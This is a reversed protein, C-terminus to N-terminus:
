WAAPRRSGRRYPRGGRARLDLDPDVVAALDEVARRADEEAVVLVLRLRGLRLRRVAEDARAVGSEEIRRAVELDDVARLVHPLHAVAREERRFVDLVLQLEIGVDLLRHGEAVPAVVDGAEDVDVEHRDAVPGLAVADGVGGVLFEGAMREDVGHDLLVNVLHVPRQCGLRAHAARLDLAEEDEVLLEVGVVTLQRAGLLHAAAEDGLAVRGEDLREVVARRLGVDRRLDRELVAALAHDAARTFIRSM